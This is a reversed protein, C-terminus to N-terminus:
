RYDEIIHIDMAFSYEDDSINGYDKNDPDLIEGSSGCSEDDNDNNGGEGEKNSKKTTKGSSQKKSSKSLKAFYAGASSLSTSSSVDKVRECTKQSHGLEGCSKYKNRRRKSSATSASVETSSSIQVLINEM